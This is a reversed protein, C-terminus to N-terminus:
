KESLLKAIFRRGAGSKYFKERQRSKTYSELKETYVVKWPKFRSTFSSKGKNHERLRRDVDTTSGVYTKQHNVSELIYLYYM